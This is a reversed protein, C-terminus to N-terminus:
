NTNLYQKLERFSSIFKKLDENKNYERVGDHLQDTKNFYITVSGNVKRKGVPDFGKSMLFAALNLSQTYYLDNM